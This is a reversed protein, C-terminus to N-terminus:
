RVSVGLSTHLGRGALVETLQWAAATVCQYQGMVFLVSVPATAECGPRLRQGTMEFDIGEVQPPDPELFAGFYGVPLEQHHM